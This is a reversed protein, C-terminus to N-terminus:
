IIMQSSKNSILKERKNFSTLIFSSQHSISSKDEKIYGGRLQTICTANDEFFITPTNEITLFGYKEKIHQIISRLWICERSAEYIEIIELHNSLNAV